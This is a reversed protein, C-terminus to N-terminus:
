KCSRQTKRLKQKARDVLNSKPYDAILTELFPQADRCRGMAVFNDHMLILGDDVKDGRAYAQLITQLSRISQANANREYQCEAMLYLSNDAFKNKPFQRVFTAFARIAEDCDAAAKRDYGYRYLESAETPLPVANPGAVPAVVTPAIEGEKLQQKVEALKGNAENLQTRLQEIILGTDASGSRLQDIATTLRAELKSIQESVSAVSEALKQRNKRQDETIQDVQGKLATIDATMEQGRWYSVCGSSFVLSLVLVFRTCM